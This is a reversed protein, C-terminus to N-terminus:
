HMRSVERAIGALGMFAFFALIWRQEPHLVASVVLFLEALALLVIRVTSSGPRSSIVLAAVALFVVSAVLSVM